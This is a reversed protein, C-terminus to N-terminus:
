YGLMKWTELVLQRADALTWKQGSWFLYKRNNPELWEEYVYEDGLHQWLWVLTARFGDDLTGQSLTANPVNWALCEMLYSPLAEIVGTKALQNEANKLARAYNKYRQGSAVNKARGNDLQQKPWNLIAGGTKKFVKTGVEESSRNARFYAHYEFSPVVDISPRSGPREAIVIAVAGSTDVDSGGFCARLATEVEARWTAPDWPGTYPTGPGVPQEFDGVYDYYFCDRNEVVIDVDSDRRVNTNNAYSGKAYVKIKSRYGAFTPHNNIADTVMREARDQQVQENDSSPKIWASLLNARENPTM